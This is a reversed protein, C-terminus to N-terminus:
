VQGPRQTLTTVNPIGGTIGQTDPLRGYCKELKTIHGDLALHWLLGRCMLFSHLQEQMM